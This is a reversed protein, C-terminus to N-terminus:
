EIARSLDQLEQLWLRVHSATLNASPRAHLWIRGPQIYIERMGLGDAAEMLSKISTQFSTRALISQAWAPDQAHIQLDELNYPLVDVKGCDGCDLIPKNWGVTMRQDNNAAIRINLLNNQLSRGPIFQAEVSRGDVCGLYQRGLGMSAVSTFGMSSFLSELLRGSSFLSVLSFITLSIVWVLGLIGTLIAAPLNRAQSGPNPFPAPLPLFTLLLAIGAILLPPILLLIFFTKTRVNM